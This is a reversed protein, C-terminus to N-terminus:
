GTHITSAHVNQTEKCFGQWDSGARCQNHVKELRRQVVQNTKAWGLFLTLEQHSAYVFMICLNEQLAFLFIM